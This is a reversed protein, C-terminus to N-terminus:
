HSKKLYIHKSQKVLNVTKNVKKAKSPNEFEQVHVTGEQAVTGQL